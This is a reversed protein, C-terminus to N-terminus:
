TRCIPNREALSSGFCPSGALFTACRLAFQIWCDGHQIRAPPTRLSVGRGNRQPQSAVRHRVPLPRARGRAPRRLHRDRRYPPLGAVLETDRLPLRSPCCAITSAPPASSASRAAYVLRHIHLAVRHIEFSGSLDLAEPSSRPSRRSQPRSPTSSASRGKRIAFKPPQIVWIPNVLPLDGHEARGALPRSPTGRVRLNRLSM